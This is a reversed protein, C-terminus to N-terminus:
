DGFNIGLQELVPRVRQLDAQLLALQEACHWRELDEPPARDTAYQAAAPVSEHAHAELRAVLARLEVSARWRRMPIVSM